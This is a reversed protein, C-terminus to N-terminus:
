RQGEPVAAPEVGHADGWVVNEPITLEFRHYRGSARAPILGTTNASASPKWTDSSGAMSRVAVRGSMQPADCLPRFGNVFARRGAALEVAGTQFKAQLPKGTFFGLKFDDDFAALTPVGGAYSRSDLSYPLADISTNIDDLGELTYGPSAGDVMGTMLLGPELLSWRDLGYHYCLVKDYTNDTTNGISRYAWYVVKRKPDEHGWVNYIESENDIDDLFFQDVRNEGIPIPPKGYKYFGDDSLYFIGQATAVASKPALCGHSTVTQQFTMVMSTDLALNAEWLTEAQFIVMGSIGGVIAMLEGGSPLSQFDSSHVRSTWFDAQNLGSWQVRRADTSLHGLMVFDGVTTVYRAIPADSSLDAFATSSTVNYSQPTDIGNVAIVLDGFQAFSWKQDTATSYGGTKSVDTWGLTDPDMKYIKDATAAFLLYSGNDVFALFSGQPRAALASTLPVFGPFPGFSKAKPMVNVLTDCASPDFVSADPAFNGFPILSM